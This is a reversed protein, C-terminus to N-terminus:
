VFVYELNSKLFKCFLPNINSDTRKTKNLQSFRQMILSFFGAGDTSIHTTSQM